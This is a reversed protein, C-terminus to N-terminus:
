GHDANDPHFLMAKNMEYLDLLSISHTAAVVIM